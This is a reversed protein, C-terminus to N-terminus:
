DKKITRRDEGTLHIVECGQQLRSAVRPDFSKALQEVSKNSTIFTARCHELRQDLVLLFTRLSFDTEQSGISVTTGVDELFLKDTEILPRVVDLETKTSGVKYTDRLQLCLMEYTIRYVKRGVLLFNRMIATMAYSKGVGQSGWLLMGKDNPLDTIKKQLAQSLHEIRASQFLKPILKTALEDGRRRTERERVIPICTPCLRVWDGIYRELCEQETEKGCEACTYRRKSTRASKQISLLSETLKTAEM